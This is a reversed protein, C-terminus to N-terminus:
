VEGALKEVECRKVNLGAAAPFLATWSKVFAAGLWNPTSSSLDSLQVDFDSSTGCLSDISTRYSVDLAHLQKFTEFADWADENKATIAAKKRAIYSAVLAAQSKTMFKTSTATSADDIGRLGIIGLNFVDIQLARKNWTKEPLSSSLLKRITTRQDDSTKEHAAVVSLAAIGQKRVELAADYAAVSDANEELKDGMLYILSALDVAQQVKQANILSTVRVNQLMALRVLAATDCVHPTNWTSCALATKKGYTDFKALTAAYKAMVAIAKKEIAADGTTDASFANIAAADAASLKPSNAVAEAYMNKEKAVPALRAALITSELPIMTPTDGKVQSSTTAASGSIGIATTSASVTGSNAPQVAPTTNQSTAAAPAAPTNPAAPTQGLPQTTSQPMVSLSSAPVRNLENTLYIYAGVAGGAMLIGVVFIIISEKSNM